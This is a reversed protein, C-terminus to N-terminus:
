QSGAENGRGQTVVLYLDRVDFLISIVMTILALGLWITFAQSTDAAGDAFETRYLYIVLPTWLFLQPVGIVYINPRFQYLTFAIAFSAMTAVFVYLAATNSFMFIASGAVLVLGMFNAWIMVPRSIKSQVAQPLNKM